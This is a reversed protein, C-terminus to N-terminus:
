MCVCVCMYCINMGYYMLVRSCFVRFVFLHDRFLEGICERVGQQRLRETGYGISKDQLFVTKMVQLRALVRINLYQVKYIHISNVHFEKIKCTATGDDRLFGGLASQLMQPRTQMYMLAKAFARPEEVRKHLVRCAEGNFINRQQAEIVTLKEMSYFSTISDDFIHCFAYHWSTTDDYAETCFMQVVYRSFGVGAVTDGQDPLELILHHCWYQRYSAATGFPVVLFILPPMADRGLAHGAEFNAQIFAPPRNTVIFIPDLKSAGRARGTGFYGDVTAAAALDLM